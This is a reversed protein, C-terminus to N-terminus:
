DGPQGTGYTTSCGAALLWCGTAKTALNIAVILYRAENVTVAILGSHHTLEHRTVAPEPQEDRIALVTPAFLIM